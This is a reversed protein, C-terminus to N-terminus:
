FNVKTHWIEFCHKPHLHPHGECGKCIFNCRKVQKPTSCVKCRRDQETYAICHKAGELREIPNSLRPRGPKTFITRTPDPRIASAKCCLEDIVRQKFSKLTMEHKKMTPPRTLCWLIYANVTTIELSWYFIKKWWKKTRRTHIGYYGIMQDARDCGNMSYNYAHIAGPKVKGRQVTVDEATASTSALIVPKKAKKDKWTLCLIKDQLMWYKSQMHKLVITKLAKPFGVRNNQVTGTYYQGQDLLHDILARTTYWRDAYIHYGKGLHKLLTDFIKIAMGGNPDAEPDYSTNAGYYTLLNLVYGTGSDVLGFSKIHYKYPKAANFMKYRWRGKWGIIMEDISVSQNPTFAFQFRETLSNVFPEIKNKDEAGPEGVHLMSSYITEFRERQFMKHYFGTYLNDATSFYDRISPRKDIGMNIIVALFKLWEYETFNHWNDRNFRSRSLAPSNKVIMHEAYNNVSRIFDDTIDSTM